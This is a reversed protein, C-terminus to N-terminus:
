KKQKVGFLMPYRQEVFKGINLSVYTVLVSMLIALWPTNYKIEEGSSLPLGLIKELRMVLPIVFLYAITLIPFHFGLIHMSKSGMVTLMKKLWIKKSLLKSFSFVLIIGLLAAIYLSYASPLELSYLELDGFPVFVYSCLAVLFLLWAFKKHSSIFSYFTNTKNKGWSFPMNYGIYGLLFMPFMILSQVLYFPCSIYERVFVYGALPFLIMGGWLLKVSKAFKITVYSLMFITWLSLLFWLPGVDAFAFEVRHTALLNEVVNMFSAFIWYVCFPILLRKSKQLLFARWNNNVKLFFGSVFFFFPMHFLYIVHRINGNLFCHGFVMLFICIGKGIDITTDREKM